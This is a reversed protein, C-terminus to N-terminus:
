LVHLIWLEQLVLLYMNRIAKEVSYTNLFNNGMNKLLRM